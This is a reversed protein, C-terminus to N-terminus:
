WDREWNVSIVGTALDVGDIVHKVFPLLREVEGDRVVLVENAGTELLEVVRGLPEGNRDVVVLGTLDHWYYEGDSATPMADRPVAVYWGKLAEAAARDEVGALKADLKGASWRAASLEDPKWADAPVKDSASIWWQGLKSWAGPDDAFPHVRVWGKVGYAGTIRGLIIM